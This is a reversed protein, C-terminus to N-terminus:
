KRECYYKRQFNSITMMKKFPKIQTLAAKFTSYYAEGQGRIAGV